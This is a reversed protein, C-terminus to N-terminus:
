RQGGAVSAGMADVLRVLTEAADFYDGIRAPDVLCYGEVAEMARDDINVTRARNLARVKGVIDQYPLQSAYAEIAHAKRDAFPMVNLLLNSPQFGGIEYALLRPPPAVRRLAARLHLATARHDPHLEFPSPFALTTPAFAAIERVLDDVAGVAAALAFDPHDLFTTEAGGIRRAAERAEDKRLARYAEGGLRGGPDGLGGDTMVVTRVPRGADLHMAMLGGCGIVEDDPHPALVLLPGRVLHEPGLLPEWPRLYPTV